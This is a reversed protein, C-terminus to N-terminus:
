CCVTLCDEDKTMIKIYMYKQLQTMSHYYQIFRYLIVKQIKSQKGLVPGFIFGIARPVLHNAYASLLTLM